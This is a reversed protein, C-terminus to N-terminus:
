EIDNKYLQIKKKFSNFDNLLANLYFVECTAFSSEQVGGRVPAFDLTVKVKFWQGRLCYPDDACQHTGTNGLKFEIPDLM